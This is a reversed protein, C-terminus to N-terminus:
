AARPKLAGCCEQVIIIFRYDNSIQSKPVKLIDTEVRADKSYRSRSGPVVKMRSYWCGEVARAMKRRM